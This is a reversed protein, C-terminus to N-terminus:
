PRIGAAYKHSPGRRTPLRVRKFAPFEVEGHVLRTGPGRGPELGFVFGSFIAFEPTESTRAFTQLSLLVCASRIEDFRWRQCRPTLLSLNRPVKNRMEEATLDDRTRVAGHRAGWRLRLRSCWSRAKTSAASGRSAPRWDAPLQMRIKEARELVAETSPAVGLRLNADKAWAVLAWEEWFRNAVGMVVHYTTTGMDCLNTYDELKVKLFAESVLQRVEAVPKAVWKRKAAERALFAAAADAKYGARGYLILAVKTFDPVAGIPCGDDEADPTLRWEAQAATATRKEVRRAARLQKRVESLALRAAQSASRAESSRRGGEM